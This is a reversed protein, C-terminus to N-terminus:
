PNFHPHIPMLGATAVVGGRTGCGFMLGGDLASTPRTRRRAASVDGSNAHKRMSEAAVPARRDSTMASRQLSMSRGLSHGDATTHDGAWVTEDLLVGLGVSGTPSREVISGEDNEGVVGLVHVGICCGAADRESLVREHEAVCNAAGLRPVRIGGRAAEPSQALLLTQLPNPQVIQAVENGGLRETGSDVDAGNSAPETM